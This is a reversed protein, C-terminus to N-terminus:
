REPEDSTRYTLLYATMFLLALTAVSAWRFIPLTWFVVGMALYGAVLGALRARAGTTYLFGAAVLELVAILTMILGTTGLALYLDGGVASTEIELVNAELRTAGAIASIGLIAHVLGAIFLLAASLRSM